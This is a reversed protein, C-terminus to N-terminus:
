FSQRGQDTLIQFIPESRFREIKGTKQQETPSQIKKIDTNLLGEAEGWRASTALCIRAIHYCDSEKSKKLEELLELIQGSTLFTLEQEDLKLKRIKGIPNEKQWEGIRM